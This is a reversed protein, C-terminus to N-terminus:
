TINTIPKTDCSHSMILFQLTILIYTTITGVMAAFFTADINFGKASFTNYHHLLQLSFLQLAALLKADITFCKASFTNDCHLVQLSFIQLEDKIEKDTTVNFVDHISTTIQQAQARGTECAWVILLVKILFYAIYLLFYMHFLVIKFFNMNVLSYKAALIYFYLCITVTSLTMVVTTVLQLSFIINLMQVTDSITLHQIKLAKLEMILFPNRQNHYNLRHVSPENNAIFRRMSMLNDNIRTFCTVAALLKADITFCKASFTNDCHLVQLSFIQLENKVKEDTTVNFVDHISTTIQQAQHKGTECAWVILLVKILFYAIYLLFYMHFLVIKFFNMDVLIHQSAQIYYYLCFTTNFFTMVITALLQLSFIINLTQVTDSITLHQIKLAKLEMILFPNRQNHYNLRHVSPENNAIFRRMSMLNDNIRTFCAKLVCVCNMYMMDMQFIVVIIYIEFLRNIPLKYIFTLIIWVAYFFGIIDKAHILKSLKKYSELPLRSSIKMITQLLRMRPVTLILTVIIIFNGVVLACNHVLIQPLTVMDVKEFISSNYLMILSCLSCSCVIVILLILHPKSIELSTANIKYPFIGLIRCLTFCPYMLSQFDKAYFFRWEAKKEKGRSEGQFSTSFNFM